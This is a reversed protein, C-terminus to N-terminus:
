HFSYNVSFRYNETDFEYLESDVGLDFQFDRFKIGGGFTPGKRVGNEDNFYGVRASLFGNYTYEVGGCKWADRFTENFSSTVGVLVSIIEGSVILWNPEEELLRYSAGIRLTRPLPDTDGAELYRLDPGFNQLVTSLYLGRLPTKYLIGADAGWSSGAGGGPENYLYAILWGPALYSYIFKLGFGISIDERIEVGYSVGASLDFTRFRALPTGFVDTAQTEGTTLYIINAGIVGLGKVPHALGFYEYYMDPYLGTLWNSHMLSIATADQFGLGAPNYFPATADDAISSFAAGMGSPRAGPFITLFIAGAQSATGFSAGAWLLTTLVVTIIAVFLQKMLRRRLM